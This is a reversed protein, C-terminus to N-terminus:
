LRGEKRGKCVQDRACPQRANQGTPHNLPPLFFFLSDHDCRPKLRSTPVQLLKIAKLASDRKFFEVFGYGLSIMQGGKKMDKKKAIVVSRVPAVGEFLSRLGEDTTKFNLNKIYLTTGEMREVEEAELLKTKDVIFCTLPASLLLLRLSLSSLLSFLGPVPL